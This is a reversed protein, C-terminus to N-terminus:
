PMMSNIQDQAEKLTKEVDADTSVSKVIADTFATVMETASEGPWIAVPQIRSLQELNIKYLPNQEIFDKLGNPDDALGTRLPLYGIQSTIITYGRDGTVFKIFEWVAANKEPSDPRVALVSGSNVPISEKDGFQPLAGGYVKWGGAESAKKIGSYLSTSSVYMGLNGAMFQESVEADTGKASAGNTYLDKWM